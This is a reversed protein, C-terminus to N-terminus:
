FYFHDVPTVVADILSCHWGHWEWQFKWKKRQNNQMQQLFLFSIHLAVLSNCCHRRMSAAQTSSAAHMCSNYQFCDVPAIIADILSTFTMLPAQRLSAEALSCHWRHWEVSTKMEKKSQKCKSWLLVVHTASGALQLPWPPLNSADAAHMCFNFFVILRHSLPMSQHHLLDNM